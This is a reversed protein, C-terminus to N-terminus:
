TNLHTNNLFKEKHSMPGCLSVYIRLAQSVRSEKGAQVPKIDPFHLFGSVPFSLFGEGINACLSAKHERM